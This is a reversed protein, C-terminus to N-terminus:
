QIIPVLCSGKTNIHVCIFIPHLVSSPVPIYLFLVDIGTPQKSNPARLGCFCILNCDFVIHPDTM